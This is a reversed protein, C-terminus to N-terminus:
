QSRCPHSAATKEQPRGHPDPKGVRDANWWGGGVRILCASDGPVAKAGRRSSHFPCVATCACTRQAPVTGHGQNLGLHYVFLGWGLIPSCRSTALTTMSLRHLVLGPVEFVRVFMGEGDKKPQRKEGTGLVLFSEGALGVSSVPDRGGAIITTPKFMVLFMLPTKICVRGEMPMGNARQPLCNVVPADFKPLRGAVRVSGLVIAIRCDLWDVQCGSYLDEPHVAAWSVITARPLTLADFAM